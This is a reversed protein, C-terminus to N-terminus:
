SRAVSHSHQEYARDLWALTQENEGLGAYILAMHYPPVYRRKSVEKLENLVEQAKAKQGSVRYTRGLAAVIIPSGGSLNVAKRLETIAEEFMAKQEYAQGLQWHARYFNPDMEVAKRYQEIAQDYRRGYYSPLGLETNIVLSLPDLEQARKMERVAEDLRGMWMLYHAYWQHATAYNPNLEFARKYEREASAWEWDNSSIWALSTHAEALTGDIELAKVAAAKASRFAEAPSPPGWIGLLSYADALGVYALAYGPDKEIAQNFYEVGKQLGEDTRKNWYYRGKLYLQYAETNETYRKTLRKEEEGTLRLRLKESIEKAIEEQVVVIDALKRNYKAGWLRSVNVVDVLETRISLGDGRQLVKGLLVARVHRDRGVEQPDVDRGKTKAIHKQAIRRSKGADYFWFSDAGWFEV